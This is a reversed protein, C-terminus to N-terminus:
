VMLAAYRGNKRMVANAFPCVPKIKMNNSKAFNIAEDVLSKGIGQGELKGAVNTHTIVMIDNEQGTETVYELNAVMKGGDEIYFMGGNTDSHQIKM